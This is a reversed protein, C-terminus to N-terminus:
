EVLRDRWWQVSVCLGRPRHIRQIVQSGQEVDWTEVTIREGLLAEGTYDAQLRRLHEWDARTEAWAIYAANNVHENIDLDDELVTRCDVEAPTAPPEPIAAPEIRTRRAPFDLELLFGPLRVPRRRELDVILWVSAAEALTEGAESVIELERWARAGSTRRSPWTIVELHEGSEPWRRVALGLQVLMWAQGQARLAEIGVGLEAAHPGAAQELLRAVASPGRGGARCAMRYVLDM